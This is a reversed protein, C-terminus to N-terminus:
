HDGRGGYDGQDGHERYWRNWTVQNRKASRDVRVVGDFPQQIESFAGRRRDGDGFAHGARLLKMDGALDFRRVHVDVHAELAHEAVERREQMWIGLRHQNHANAGAHGSPRQRDMWFYFPDDDALDLSDHGGTRARVEAVLVVTDEVIRADLQDEVVRPM